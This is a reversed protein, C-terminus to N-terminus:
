AFIGYEIRHLEDKILSIGFSSDLLEKPTVNGLTINKTHLWVNFADSGGFVQSGMRYLLVIEYIKESQLQDFTKDEKQYRQMTRDSIHLFYSWESISFPSQKLISIFSQFRVGNRINQIISFIDNGGLSGYTAAPENLINLNNDSESMFSKKCIYSM